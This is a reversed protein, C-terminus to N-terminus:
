KFFRKYANSCFSCKEKIKEVPKSEFIMMIIYKIIFSLFIMLGFLLIESLNIFLISLVYITLLQIINYIKEEKENCDCSDSIINYIFIIICITFIFLAM